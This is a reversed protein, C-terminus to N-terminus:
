FKRINCKIKNEFHLYSRIYSIYFVKTFMYLSTNTSNFLEKRRVINQFSGWIVYLMVFSKGKFVELFILFFLGQFIHWGYLCRFTCFIQQRMEVKRVQSILSFLIFIKYYAQMKAEDELYSFKAGGQFGWKVSKNIAVVWLM